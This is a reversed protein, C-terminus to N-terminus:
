GGSADQKELETLCRAALMQVFAKNVFYSGTGRVEGHRFRATREEGAYQKWPDGKVYIKATVSGYDNAENYRFDCGEISLESFLAAVVKEVDDQTLKSM